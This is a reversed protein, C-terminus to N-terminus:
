CLTMANIPATEAIKGSVTMPMIKLLSMDLKGGFSCCSLLLMDSSRPAAMTYKATVVIHM